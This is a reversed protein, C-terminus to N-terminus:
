NPIFYKLGM